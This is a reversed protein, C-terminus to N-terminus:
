FVALPRPGTRGQDIIICQLMLFDGNELLPVFGQNWWVEATTSAANAIHPRALAGAALGVSGRLLTRRTLATMMKAEGKLVPRDSIERFDGRGAQVGQDIAAEAGDGKMVDYEAISFPHDANFQAVAPNYIEYVPM